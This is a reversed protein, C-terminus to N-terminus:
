ISGLGREGPDLFTGGGQFFESHAEIQFQDAEDLVIVTGFKTSRVYLTCDIEGYFKFSVLGRGKLRFSAGRFSNRNPRYRFNILEDLVIM